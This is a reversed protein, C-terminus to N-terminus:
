NSSKGFLKLIFSWLRAFFGESETPTDQSTTPIIPAKTPSLTPTPTPNITALPSPTSATTQKPYSTTSTTPTPLPTPTPTPAVFYIIAGSGRTSGEAWYPYVIITGPSSSTCKGYAKGENNTIPSTMYCKDGDKPNEVRIDVNNNPRPTSNDNELFVVEVNVESGVDHYGSDPNTKFPGGGAYVPSASLFMSIIAIFFTINKAMLQM